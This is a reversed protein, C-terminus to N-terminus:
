LYKAPDKMFDKYVLYHNTEHYDIAQVPIDDFSLIRAGPCALLIPSHTPVSFMCFAM